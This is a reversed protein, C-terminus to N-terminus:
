NENVTIPDVHSRAVDHNWPITGARSEDIQVAEVNSHSAEASNRFDVAWWGAGRGDFGM